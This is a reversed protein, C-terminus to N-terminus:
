ESEEDTSAPNRASLEYGGRSPVKAWPEDIPDLFLSARVDNLSLWAQSGGAGLAQKFYNAQQEPSARLIEDDAFDVITNPDNYLLDRRIAEEWRVIYPKISQTNFYRMTDADIKEGSFLMAAPVKFARAIENIQHKRSELHQTEVHNMALPSYKADGDLIALGHKNNTYSTAWSERLQERQEASLPSSFSLVGAPRGGNASIDLSQKELTNGIGIATRAKQIASLGSFGDLGTGHLYLVDKPQFVAQSGNALNVRFQHGGNALIELTWVNPMVPILEKIRNNVVTKIALAGRGLVMHATLTEIFEMRTMYSNPATLLGALWHDPQQTTYRLGNKITITKVDIPISAVAESITQVACLVAATETATEHTLSPASGGAGSIWGSFSDSIRSIVTQNTKPKRDFFGLM